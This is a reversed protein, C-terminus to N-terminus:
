GGCCPWGRYWRCPSDVKRIRVQMVALEEDGEPQARKAEWQAKWECWAAVVGGIVAVNYQDLPTPAEVEKKLM